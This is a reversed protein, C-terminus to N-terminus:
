YLLSKYWEIGGCGILVVKKPAPREFVEARGGGAVQVEGPAEVGRPWRQRAAKRATM